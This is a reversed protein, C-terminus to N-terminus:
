GQLVQEVLDTLEWMDFPKRLLRPLLPLRGMTDDMVDSPHHTTLIVPVLQIEFIQRVLETGKMPELAYEAILLDYRHDRAALVTESPGEFESVEYGLNTLTDAVDKRLTVDPEVYLIRKM